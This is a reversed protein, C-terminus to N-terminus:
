LHYLTYLLINTPDICIGCWKIYPVQADMSKLAQLLDQFWDRNMGLFWYVLM